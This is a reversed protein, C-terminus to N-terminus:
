CGLIVRASQENTALEVEVTDSLVAQEFLRIDAEHPHSTFPDQFFIVKGCLGRVVAAAIEVDGGEPGSRCLRIKQVEQEPSGTAMMFERLWKGTDGTALIFDHNLIAARYQLAFRCLELKKKDHAIMGLVSNGQQLPALPPDKPADRLLFIPEDPAFRALRSRWDKVAAEATYIDSAIPVNYVNAQRRLVMSDSKGTVDDWDTLHIIADLRGEVLELAIEIMGEFRPPKKVLGNDITERWRDVDREDRIKMQMSEAIRARDIEAYPTNIVSQVTQHTRGTTLVEFTNCLPYLHEYVFNTVLDFHAERYKPTTIFAIRGRKARENTNACM